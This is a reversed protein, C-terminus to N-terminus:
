SRPKRTERFGLCTCEDDGIQGVCADDHAPLYHGCRCLPGDISAYDARPFDIWEGELETTTM